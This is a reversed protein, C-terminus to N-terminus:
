FFVELATDKIDAKIERIIEKPLQSKWADDTQNLRYVSYPDTSHTNASDTIFKDTQSTYNLELFRFLTKTEDVSNELFKSYKILYV